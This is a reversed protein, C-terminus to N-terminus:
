LPNLFDNAFGLLSRKDRTKEMTTNGLVINAGVSKQITSSTSRTLLALRVRKKNMPNKSLKSNAVKSRKSYYEWHYM